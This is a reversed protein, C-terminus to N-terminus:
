LFKVAEMMKLSLRIVSTKRSAEKTYEQVRAISATYEASVDTFSTGCYVADRGM